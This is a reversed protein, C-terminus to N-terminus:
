AICRQADELSLLADFIADALAAHDQATMHEQDTESPSAFDSARLFAIGYEEAIREYVAPLERSLPVSWDSFEPDYAEEYVHEGLHIPSLLLIRRQPDIARIQELLRRIGEGISEATTHYLTKCDNTGLMLIVTDADPHKKLIAPFEKLGNRAPRTADDYRTTRGCLGEEIVQVQRSKLREALLSTWRVGYPFRAGNEPIYGYTNSDGFCLIQKMTGENRLM